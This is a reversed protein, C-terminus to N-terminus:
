FVDGAGEILQQDIKSLFRIPTASKAPEFELPHGAPGTEIFFYFSPFHYSVPPRNRVIWGTEILFDFRPWNTMRQFKSGAFDALGVLNREFISWYRLSVAPSM